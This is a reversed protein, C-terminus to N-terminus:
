NVLFELRNNDPAKNQASFKCFITQRDTQARIRSGVASGPGELQILLFFSPFSMFPPLSFCDMRVFIIAVARTNVHNSM